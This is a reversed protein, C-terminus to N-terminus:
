GRGALRCCASRQPSVLGGKGREQKREPQHGGRLWTPAGYLRRRSQRRRCVVAIANPAEALRQLGYLPRKEPWSEWRWQLDGSPSKWLTLPRFQKQGEAPDFRCDYGLVAGQFDHYVWRGTPEGMTPHRIPAPPANVPVPMVIKGKPPAKAPVPKAAGPSIPAFPDDSM